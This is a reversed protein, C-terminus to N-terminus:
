SATEGERDFMPLVVTVTTGQGTTSQFRITGGHLEVCRHVILLGLGTGEVTGVNAARHFAEFLRKQDPEPIGIGHDVVVFEVDNGLRRVSLDVATDPASYKCANSLLNGLIHRLTSDDSRAGALDPATVALQIRSAQGNATGVEETIRSVVAPLDLPVRKLGQKGANFRGILLVQEMISSMRRTSGHIDDLLEARKDPDLREFYSRLLEVASMIIGLPTRFEHSVMAVFRDKLEGLEREGILARALDEKAAELERTRLGVRRELDANLEQIEAHLAEARLRGRVQVRVIAFFTLSLACGVGLAILPLDGRSGAAFAPLSSFNLSWMRGLAPELEQRVFGDRVRTTIRSSNTLANLADFGLDTVDRVELRVLLNTQSGVTERYLDDARFLGYAFGQIQELRAAGRPEVGGHYVPYFVMHAKETAGDARPIERVGGSVTQATERALEMGRRHGQFDAVDSGVPYLPSRGNLTSSRVVFVGNSGEKSGLEAYGLELLNPYQWPWNMSPLWRQWQEPELKGVAHYLGQVHQVAVLYHNVRTALTDTTRDAEDNFRALDRERTSQRLNARVAWTVALGLALASYAPWM